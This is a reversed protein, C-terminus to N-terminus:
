ATLCPAKAIVSAISDLIVQAADSLPSSEKEWAVDEEFVRIVPRLGARPAVIDRISDYYARQEDRYIPSNDGARIEKALHTWRSKSFGLHIRPPYAQLSVARLPTFHQREDFEIPLKEQEVFLDFALQHGSRGSVRINRHNEIAQLVAALDADLSTRNTLDPVVISSCKWETLVTGWRLELAKRFAERRRSKIPNRRGSRAPPKDYVAQFGKERLVRVSAKGGTFAEYKVLEGTAVEFALRLILKAPLREGKWLLFASRAPRHRPKERLYRHIASVIHDKRILNADFDM